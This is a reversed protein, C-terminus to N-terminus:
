GTNDNNNNARINTMMMTMMRNNMRMMMTLRLARHEYQALAPNNKRSSSANGRQRRGQKLQDVFIAPMMMAMIMMAIIMMMIMMMTTITRMMTMIKDRARSSLCHKSHDVFIAPIMMAMIMMM